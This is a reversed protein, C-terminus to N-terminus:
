FLLFFRRFGQPELRRQRNQHPTSGSTKAPEVAPAWSRYPRDITTSRPPNYLTSAPETGVLRWARRLPQLRHEVRGSVAPQAELQHAGADYFHMEARSPGASPAVLGTV